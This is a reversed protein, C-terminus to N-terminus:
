CFMVNTGGPYNAEIEDRLNLGTRYKIEEDYAVFYDKEEKLKGCFGWVNVRKILGKEDYYELIRLDKGQIRLSRYIIKFDKISGEFNKPIILPNM